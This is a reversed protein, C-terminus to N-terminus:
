EARKRNDFKEILDNVENLMKLSNSSHLGGINWGNNGKKNNSHPLGIFKDKAMQTNMNHYKEQVVSCKRRWMEVDAGLQRNTKNLEIIKKELM